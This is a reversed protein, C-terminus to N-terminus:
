ETQFNTCLEGFTFSRAERQVVGRTRGNLAKMEPGMDHRFSSSCLFCAVPRTGISYLAVSRQSILLLPITTRFARRQTTHCIMVDDVCVGEDQRGRPVNFHNDGNVNNILKELLDVLLGVQKELFQLTLSRSCIYRTTTSFIGKILRIKDFAHILRTWESRILGCSINLRHCWCRGLGAPRRAVESKCRSAKRANRNNRARM